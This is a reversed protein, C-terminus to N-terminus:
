ICAGSLVLHLLLKKVGSAGSIVGSALGLWKQFSPQEALCPRDFHVAILMTLTMCRFALLNGLWTKWCLRNFGLPEQYSRVAPHGAPSFSTCPPECMISRIKGVMLMYSIWEMLRYSKLDFRRSDSSDIPPCVNLGLAAGSGGAYRVCILILLSTWVQQHSHLVRDMWHATLCNMRKVVNTMMVMLPGSHIARFPNDLKTYAGKKDGGLWLAKAADTGVERSVVAGKIM